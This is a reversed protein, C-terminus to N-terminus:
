LLLEAVAVIVSSGGEATEESAQSAGLRPGLEDVLQVMVRECGAGDPPTDTVTVLLRAASVTGAETVTAAAAIEAVKLAVVPMSALM